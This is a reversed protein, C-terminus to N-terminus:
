SFNEAHMEEYHKRKRLVHNCEV